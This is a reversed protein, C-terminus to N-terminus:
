FVNWPILSSPIDVQDQIMEDPVSHAQDETTVTHFHTDILMMENEDQRLKTSEQGEVELKQLALTFRFFFSQPSQYLM